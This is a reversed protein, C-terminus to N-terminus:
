LKHKNEIYQGAKNGWRSKWLLNIRVLGELSLIKKRIKFVREFDNQEKKKLRRFWNINNRSDTIIKVERIKNDVCWKIAEYLAIFEAINNSGGKNKKEILINGNEDSVVSIMKRKSLDLNQNSSCGGDIYLLM